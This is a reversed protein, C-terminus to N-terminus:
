RWCTPRSPSRTIVKVVNGIEASSEGLKAVTATTTEAATVAAGGGRSAEAANSRSRGSRRVWRSRVRRSRRCAAPSRRRRGSVVGPSRRPRRRRRRSRRRPRRCSRRRRRWRTRRARGRRGHRRAPPRVAADLASGMRGLEDNQTSAVPRDPRGRGASRGGGAGPQPGCSAAPCRWRSHRRVLPSGLVIGAVILSPHARSHTRRASPRASGAERGALGRAERDTMIEFYAKDRRRPDVTAANTSAPRTRNYLAVVTTFAFFKDRRSM